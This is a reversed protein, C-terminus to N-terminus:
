EEEEESRADLGFLRRAWLLQEAGGDSRRAAERIEVTPRHLLKQMLDSALRRAAERDEERFRKLSRELELERIEEFRARLDKILPDVEIGAEKRFFAEVEKAVIQEVGPLEKLRRSLNQDVIQRLDNMDHLFVNEIDAASREINRPLSVDILLLARGARHRMAEAVAARTVLPAPSRTACVVIDSDRLAREREEFPIAESGLEAALARSREPTRNAVRLARPRRKQFHRAALAGTEGAGLILVEKRNLDGFVRQALYATASAVSVVGAGIGTESRARKCARSSAAVLRVLSSGITGAGQALELSEQIQGAIQTEGLMMSDAGCAVRFLHAAADRELRRFLHDSRLREEGRAIDLM